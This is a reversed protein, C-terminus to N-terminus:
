SEHTPAEEVEIAFVTEGSVRLNYTNGLRRAYLVLPRPRRPGGGARPPLRTGSRRGQAMRAAEPRAPGHLDLQPQLGPLGLVPRPVGAPGPRDPGAPLHRVDPAPVHRQAQGSVM